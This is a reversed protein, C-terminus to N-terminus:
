LVERIFHFFLLGFVFVEDSGVGAFEPFEVEVVEKEGGEGGSVVVFDAVHVLVDDVVDDGGGFPVEDDGEADVSVDLEPFFDEVKNFEPFVVFCM